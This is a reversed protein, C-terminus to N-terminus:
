HTLTRDLLNDYLRVYICAQWVHILKCSFQQRSRALLKYCVYVGQVHLCCAIPCCANGLCPKM